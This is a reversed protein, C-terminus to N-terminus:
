NKLYFFLIIKYEYIAKFEKEREKFTENYMTNLGFGSKIHAKGKEIKEQMKKGQLLEQNADDFTKYFDQTYAGVDSLVKNKDKALKETIKKNLFNFEVKARNFVNSINNMLKKNDLNDFKEQPCFNKIKDIRTKM